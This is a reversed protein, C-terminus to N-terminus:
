YYKEIGGYGRILKGKKTREIFNNLRKVFEDPRKRADDIYAIRIRKYSESFQQYYGWADTDEKITRVIDDPFVYTESLIHSIGDMIDPHISGNEALRRLREKNAQSYSSKPNRPTFRQIKHKEDLSRITSDIWGVCLAEEVADNYSIADEGSAKLPFVFWIESGTDYNEHLWQRWEARTRFCRQTGSETNKGEM